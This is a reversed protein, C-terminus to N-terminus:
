AAIKLVEGALRAFEAQRDANEITNAIWSLANSARWVTNGPPLNQVDPGNYAGDVADLEGKTLSKALRRHLSAWDVVQEQAQVIRSLFRQRNDEDFASGMVDTIASKAAETDLEITRDSFIAGMELEEGLRRGLHVQRLLDDGVLGNLCLCRLVFTSFLHAGHGFDSTSWKAGLVVFENPIPEYVTPIVVTLSVRTDGPYGDFPVAGYQKALNVFQDSLPRADLRRYRDSMVGRVDGNVVRLLHRAPSHDFTETLAHSLLAQQWPEGALLKSAYQDPINAIQTVQSLAHPHLWKGQLDDITDVLRVRGANAQFGIASAKALYDVPVENQIKEFVKVANQTGTRVRNELITLARRAESSTAPEHRENFM